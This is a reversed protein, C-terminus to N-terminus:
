GRAVEIARDFADLIEQPPESRVGREDALSDNFRAVNAGMVEELHTMAEWYLHWDPDVRVGVLDEWARGLAGLSCFCVATPSSCSVPEGRSNIAGSGTTWGKEVLVTRAGELIDVATIM